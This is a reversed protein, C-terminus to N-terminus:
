KKVEQAYWQQFKMPKNISIDLPQLKDTCSVPLQIPIINHSRLLSLIADTTQGGFNDFIAVAPFTSGLKLKQRKESVFPVIVKNIYRKMTIENSWHNESHWVDWGDPFGVQPHYKPTKGQYLLQPPLYDGAATIALVATLQRKDDSHAIPVINTGEKEMTWDGSPVISLGTQDWNIILSEPIDNIIVEAAVDALFIEKCEEFRAMSIKGSTSCKRKVFGMHRLLSQARSKVINIHGGHSSLKSIDRYSVIGEAAGMVVTTNVVGGAARLNSIFEKVLSDLQEGLLLPRGRLETELKTIVIPEDKHEEGESAENIEAQQKRQELIEDKLKKLYKDKFRRATSENIDIGWAATYHKAANTAGNEAAYKGILARQEKSYSNYQRRNHSKESVTNVANAISKQAAKIDKQSLISPKFAQDRKEKSM